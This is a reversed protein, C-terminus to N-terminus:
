PELLAPHEGYGSGITPGSEHTSRHRSCAQGNGDVAEPQPHRQHEERKDEAISHDGALFGIELALEAVDIAAVVRPYPAPQLAQRGLYPTPSASSIGVTFRASVPTSKTM